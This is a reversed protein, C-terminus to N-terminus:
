KGSSGVALALVGGVTVAALITKRADAQQQAAVRLGDIL